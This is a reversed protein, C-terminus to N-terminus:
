LVAALAWREASALVLCRCLQGDAVSSGTRSLGGGVQLKLEFVVSIRFRLLYLDLALSTGTTAQDATARLVGQTSTYRWCAAPAGPRARCRRSCWLCRGAIRFKRCISCNLVTQKPECLYEATTSNLGGQVAALSLWSEAQCLPMEYWLSNWYQLM